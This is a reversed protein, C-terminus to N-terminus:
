HSGNRSQKEDYSQYSGPFHGPAEIISIKIDVKATLEELYRTVSASIRLPKACLESAILDFYIMGGFVTKTCKQGELKQGYILM